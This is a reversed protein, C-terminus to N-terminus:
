SLQTFFFSCTLSNAIYDEWKVDSARKIEEQINSNGNPTMEKRLNLKAGMHRGQATIALGIWKRYTKLGVTICM